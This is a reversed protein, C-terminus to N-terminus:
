WKITFSSADAIGTAQVTGASLAGTTPDISYSVISGDGAAYAFKGTPDIVISVPHMGLTAVQNGGTLVGTTPDIAYRYISRFEGVYAFKGTPDITFSYNHNDTMVRTVYNLKGSAPDISYVAVSSFAVIYAFKGKSDITVSFPGFSGDLLSDVNTLAGSAPDISYVGVYDGVYNVAFAFRGAPDLTINALSGATSLTAGTETLVGSSPNIRYAFIHGLNLSYAFKGTPDIALFNPAKVTTATAGSSALLLGSSPDIPFLTVSDGLKNVVYSFRDAPDVVVSYAATGTSITTIPTLVGSTRDISFVAVFQHVSDVLYAYSVKTNSSVSVTFIGSSTATGGDTTVTVFGTTAGRPVTVTISTPTAATVTAATGNFKVLNNASTASFNAGSITLTAGVLGASSSIGSITPVTLTPTPTICVGNTLVQSSTCAPPAQRVCTVYYTDVADLGARIYGLNLNVFMHGGGSQVSNSQTSSWVSGLRGIGWDNRNSPSSLYFYLGGTADNIGTYPTVGSLEKMTPLRWGSQGNITSACYGEAQWYSYVESTPPTWILGGQSINPVATLTPAVCVGNQLVQPLNCTPTAAQIAEWSTIANVFSAVLGVSTVVGGSVPGMVYITGANDIALYNQTAPYFRYNYQQYQGSTSSGSFLSSYNGEAYAFVRANSVNSSNGGSQNTVSFSGSGGTDTRTFTATLTNGNLTATGSFNIPNGSGKIALSLNVIGGSSSGTISVPDTETSHLSCTSNNFSQVGATSGTGSLSTGTQTLSINFAGGDTASCGAGTKGSWQWTGSYTGAYNVVQAFTLMPFFSALLIFLRAFFSRM